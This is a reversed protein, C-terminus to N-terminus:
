ESYADHYFRITVSGPDSFELVEYHYMENLELVFSLKDEKLSRIRYIDKIAKVEGIENELKCDIEKEMGNFTMEIRAPEEYYLITYMPVKSSKKEDICFSFTISHIDANVEMIAHDVEEGGNGIKFAQVFTKVVPIESAYSYIVPNNAGLFLVIFFVAAIGILSSIHYIRNRRKESRFLM